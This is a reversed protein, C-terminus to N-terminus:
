RHSDHDWSYGERPDPLELIRSDHDVSSGPRAPPQERHSDHDWSYSDRPDPMELIRSDHGSSPDADSAAALAPSALLALALTALSATRLLNM